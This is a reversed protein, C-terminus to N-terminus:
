RIVYEQFFVALIHTTQFEKWQGFRLSLKGKLVSIKWLEVEILRGRLREKPEEPQHPFIAHRALLADVLSAVCRYASSSTEAFMLRLCSFRQRLEGYFDSSVVHSFSYSIGCQAIFGGETDFTISLMLGYVSFKCVASCLM